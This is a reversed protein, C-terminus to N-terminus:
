KKPLYDQYWDKLVEKMTEPTTGWHAAADEIAANMPGMNGKEMETISNTIRSMEVGYLRTTFAAMDAPTRTRRKSLEKYDYFAKAM